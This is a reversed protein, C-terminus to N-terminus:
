YRSSESTAHGGEQQPYSIISRIVPYDLHLHIERIHLSADSVMKLEPNYRQPPFLAVIHRHPFVTKIVEIVPVLDKDGSILFATDYKDQFADTLMESAIRVDTMKETPLQGEYKCNRCTYSRMGYKGRLVEVNPVTKLANLFAGQRASKAPNGKITSTFYKTSQLQQGPRIFQECLSKVNLWYYQKWQKARIGFYLNFGDIYAMVRETTM